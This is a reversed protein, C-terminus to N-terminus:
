NISGMLLLANVADFKPRTQHPTDELVNRAPSLAMICLAFHLKRTPWTLLYLVQAGDKTHLLGCAHLPLLTQERVPRSSVSVHPRRPDLIPLNANRRLQYLQVHSWRSFGSRLFSTARWRSRLLGNSSPGKRQELKTNHTARGQPGAFSTAPRINGCRAQNL